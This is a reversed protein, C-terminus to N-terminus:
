FPFAKIRFPTLGPRAPIHLPSLRRDFESATKFAKRAPTERDRVELGHDCGSNQLVDLNWEDIM